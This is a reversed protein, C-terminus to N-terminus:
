SWFLVLFLGIWDYINWNEKGIIPKSTHMHDLCLLRLSAQQHTEPFTKRREYFHSTPFFGLGESGEHKQINYCSSTIDPAITAMKHHHPLLWSFGLFTQQQATLNVSGSIM